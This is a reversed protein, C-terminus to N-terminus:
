SVRVLLYCVLLMRKSVVSAGVARQEGIVNVTALETSETGTTKM